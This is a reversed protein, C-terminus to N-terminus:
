EARWGRLAPPAHGSLKAGVWNLPDFTHTWWYLIDNYLGCPEPTEIDPQSMNSAHQNGRRPPRNGTRLFLKTPITRLTITRVIAPVPLQCMQLQKLELSTWTLNHNLSLSRGSTTRNQRVRTGNPTEVLYSRPQSEKNLVIGPCCWTKNTKDLIRIHQGKYLPPLEEKLSRKDHYIKM